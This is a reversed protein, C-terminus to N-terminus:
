QARGGVLLRLKPKLQIRGDVTDVRAREVGGLIYIVERDFVRVLQKACVLAHKPDVWVSVYRGTHSVLKLEALLEAEVEHLAAEGEVPVVSAELGSWNGILQALYAEPFLGRVNYNGSGIVVERFFTKNRLSARMM